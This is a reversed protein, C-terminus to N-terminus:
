KTSKETVTSSGINHKALAEKRLEAQLKKLLDNEMRLRKLEEEQSEPKGPQKRPRGKNIKRFADDDRRYQRVWREVRERNSVGLMQAIEAQTKGEDLYMRVAELKVEVAYHKMGKKGTM